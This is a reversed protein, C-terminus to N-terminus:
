RPRPMSTVPPWSSLVLITPDPDTRSVIVLVTYNRRRQRHTYTGNSGEVMPPTDQINSPNPFTLGPMPEQFADFFDLCIDDDDTTTLPWLNGGSEFCTIDLSNLLHDHSSVSGQTAVPNPSSHVSM